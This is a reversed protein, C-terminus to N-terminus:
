RLELFNFQSSCISKQLPLLVLSLMNQYFGQYVFKCLTPFFEISTKYIESLGEVKHPM